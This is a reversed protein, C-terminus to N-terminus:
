LQVGLYNWDKDYIHRKGHVVIINRKVSHEGVISTNILNEMTPKNKYYEEERKEHECDPCGIWRDYPKSHKRCYKITGNSVLYDIDRESM